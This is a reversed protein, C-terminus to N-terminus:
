TYSVCAMAAIAAIAMLGALAGVASPAAAVLISPSISFRREQTLAATRWAIDDDEDQEAAGDAGACRSVAAFAARTTQAGCRAAAARDASLETLTAVRSPAAAFLPIRPFATHLLRCMRVILHHRGRLHAQEHAWVARQESATLRDQLGSTAVICPGRGSVSYALPVPHEIWVLGPVAPDPRGALRILQRHRTGARRGDRIHHATVFALRSVAAIAAVLLATTSVAAVWSPTAHEAAALCRFTHEALRETPTHSPWLAEVAAWAAGCVVVTCNVLWGALAAESGRRSLRDLPRAACIAVVLVVTAVVGAVIM